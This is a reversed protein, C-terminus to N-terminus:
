IDSDIFDIHFEPESTDDDRFINENLLDNARNADFIVTFENFTPGGVTTENLGKYNLYSKVIKLNHNVNRSTFASKRKVACRLYQIANFLVKYPDSSTSKMSKLMSMLSILANKDNIYICTFSLLQKIICFPSEGRRLLLLLYRLSNSGDEDLITEDREKEEDSESESGSSYISCGEMESDDSLESRAYFSVLTRISQKKQKKKSPCKISVVFSTESSQEVFVRREELDSNRRKGHPNRSSKEDSHLKQDSQAVQSKSKRNNKQTFPRLLSVILLVFLSMNQSSIGRSLRLGLTNFIKSLEEVRLTYPENKTEFCFDKSAFQGSTLEILNVARRSDQDCHDTIYDVCLQPYLLFRLGNSLKRRMNQYLIAKGLVAAIEDRTLASLEFSHCRSLIARRIRIKPKLTTAGVFTFQGEELLPLLFDQQTKTLRHIEDIFVVVRLREHNQYKRKTNEKGIIGLIDKLENISTDTASLELFVYKMEKALVNALTTKGIGPPGHLIMPPLYGFRMFSSIPGGEGLLHRQGIYDRLNAPRIAEALPEGSSIMRKVREFNELHIDSDHASGIDGLDSSSLTVAEHFISRKSSVDSTDSPIRVETANVAQNKTEIKSDKSAVPVAQFESARREGICIELRKSAGEKADLVKNPANASDNTGSNVLCNENVAENREM